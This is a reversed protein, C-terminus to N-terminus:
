VTLEFITQWGKRTDMYERVQKIRDGSLVFVFCYDNDYSRGGPITALMREELIVTDGDAYLGRFSIDIDFFLRHMECAIFRAIQDSGIMHHTHDLAVATANGAPAIWEADPTFLAAIQGVDRTKFIKWATVIVEKATPSSMPRGGIGTDIPEM